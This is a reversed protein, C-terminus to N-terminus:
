LSNWLHGFEQVGLPSSWVTQVMVNRWCCTSSENRRVLPSAELGRMACDVGCCRPLTLWFTFPRTEPLQPRSPECWSSQPEDGQLIGKRDSPFLVEIDEVSRIMQTHKSQFVLIQTNILYKEDDQFIFITKHISAAVSLIHFIISWVFKSATFPENINM